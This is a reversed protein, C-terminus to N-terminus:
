GGCHHPKLEREDALADIRDALKLLSGQTSATRATAAMRRYQAAEIRLMAISRQSLPIYDPM